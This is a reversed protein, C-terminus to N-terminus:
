LNTNASVKYKVKHNVLKKQAGVSIPFRPASIHSLVINNSDFVKAQCLHTWFLGFFQETTCCSQEVPSLKAVYM